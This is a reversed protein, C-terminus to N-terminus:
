QPVLQLQNLMSKLDPAGSKVDSVLLGQEDVLRANEYISFSGNYPHTFSRLFQQSSMRTAKKQEEPIM